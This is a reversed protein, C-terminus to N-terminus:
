DVNVTQGEFESVKLERYTLEPHALRFSRTLDGCLVIEGADKVTEITGFELAVKGFTKKRDKREKIRSDIEVTIRFRGHSDCRARYRKHNPMLLSVHMEALPQGTEVDSLIGSVDYEAAIALVGPDPVAAVACESSCDSLFKGGYVCVDVRDKKYRYWCSSIAVSGVDLPILERREM